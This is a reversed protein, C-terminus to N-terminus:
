HDHFVSVIGDKNCKLTLFTSNIQFTKCFQTTTNKLINQASEDDKLGEHVNYFFFQLDTVELVKM